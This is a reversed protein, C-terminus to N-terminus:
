SHRLARWVLRGSALVGRFGDPIRDWFLVTTALGLGQFATSNLGWWAGSGISARLALGEML